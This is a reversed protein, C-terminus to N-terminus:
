LGRRLGAGVFVRGLRPANPVPTYSWYGSIVEVITRRLAIVQIAAGGGMGLRDVTVRRWFAVYRSSGGGNAVYYGGLDYRGEVRFFGAEAFPRFAFRGTRVQVGLGVLGGSVALNEAALRIGSLHWSVWRSTRRELTLRGSPAHGPTGSGTTPNLYALGLSARYGARPFTPTRLQRPIKLSDLQAVIQDIRIARGHPPEDSVLMGIVEWSRNFLAGGSSGQDVFASQFEIEFKGAFSVRDAPTPTQWCRDNPCGVPNVPDDRGVAAVVGERDWSEPVFRAVGPADGSVRLVALDFGKRAVTDLEALTAARGSEQSAFCVWIARAPTSGARTRVVHKATVILLGGADTGIIIGAGLQPTTGEGFYSQLGVVLAQAYPPVTKRSVAEQACRVTDQASASGAIGTLLLLAVRGRATVNTAEV